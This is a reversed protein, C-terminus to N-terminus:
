SPDAPAAFKIKRKSPDTQQRYLVAVNGVRMVLASGTKAALLPALEKKQEKFDAFRVKILEHCDLAEEVSRLFKDSLGEKGIRLVPELLAGLAKLHKIQASTLRSEMLM